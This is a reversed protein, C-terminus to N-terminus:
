LEVTKHGQKLKISEHIKDISVYAVYEGKSDFGFFGAKCLPHGKYYEIITATPHLECFFEKAEKFPINDTM